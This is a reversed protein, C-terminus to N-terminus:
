FLGCLTSVEIMVMTNETSRCLLYLTREIAFIYLFLKLCVNVMLFLMIAFDFSFELM